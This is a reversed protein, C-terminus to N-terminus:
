EYFQPYRGRLSEKLALVSALMPHHPALRLGAEFCRWADDVRFKRHLNWGLDSWAGAIEPHKGLVEILLVLAEEPEGVTVSANARWIDILHGHRPERDRLNELGERLERAREPDNLESLRTVLQAIEAKETAREV